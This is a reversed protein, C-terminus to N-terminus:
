PVWNVLQQKQWPGGDTVDDWVFGPVDDQQKWLMRYVDKVKNGILNVSGDAKLGNFHYYRQTLHEMAEGPGCFFTSYNFYDIMAYEAGDPNQPGYAGAAVQTSLLSTATRRNPYYEGSAYKRCWTWAYTGWWKDPGGAIAYRYYNNQYTADSLPCFLLQANPLYAASKVENAHGAVFGDLTFAMAPNAPCGNTLFGGGGYSQMHPWTCREIASYPGAVNNDRDGSYASSAKGVDKMNSACVAVQAQMRVQSLTPMILAILIAIVAIVVLLEVLTFAKSKM